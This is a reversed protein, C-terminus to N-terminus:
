RRLKNYYFSFSNPEVLWFFCDYYIGLNKFELNKIVVKAEDYFPSSAYLKVNTFEAPEKTHPKQDIVDGDISVITKYQNKVARQEVTIVTSKDTPIDKTNVCKNGADDIPSCIHLKNSNAWFWIGPVRDGVNCCNNGTATMHIISGWKSIKGTPIIEM